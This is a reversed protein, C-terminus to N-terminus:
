LPKRLRPEIPQLHLLLFLTPQGKENLIHAEQGDWVKTGVAGCLFTFAQSSM